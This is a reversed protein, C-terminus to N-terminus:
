IKMHPIPLSTMNWHKHRWLQRNLGYVNEITKQRASTGGVKCFLEAVWAVRV